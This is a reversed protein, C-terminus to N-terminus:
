KIVGDTFDRSSKEFDDCFGFAEVPELDEIFDEMSLIIHYKEEEQKIRERDFGQSCFNEYDDIVLWNCTCCCDPVKITRYNKM